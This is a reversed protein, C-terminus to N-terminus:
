LVTCYLVTCYLVTCYLVTCYLVTCYLVTCYLVTCYLVTCYLVTCYLVTCYLVTCYLVTCYLITCYLVTCYLPICHLVTFDSLCCVQAAKALMENMMAPGKKKKKKSDGRMVIKRGEFSDPGRRKPRRLVWPPRFKAIIRKQEPLNYCNEGNRRAARVSFCSFTKSQICKPMANHFRCFTM